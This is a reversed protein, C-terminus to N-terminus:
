IPQANGYNDKDAHSLDVMSQLESPIAVMIADPGLLPDGKMRMPEILVNIDSFSNIKKM